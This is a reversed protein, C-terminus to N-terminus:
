MLYNLKNLVSVGDMLRLTRRILKPDQGPQLSKVLSSVTFKDPQVVCIFCIFLYCYILYM